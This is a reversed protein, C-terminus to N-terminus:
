NSWNDPLVIWDNALTDTQSAVWPVFANQTTKIGLWSVMSGEAYKNIDAAKFYPNLTGPKLVASEEFQDPHPAYPNIYRIWQNSANWGARTIRFGKKVMMLAKSYCLDRIPEVIADTSIELARDEVDKFGDVFRSRQKMLGTVVTGNIFLPGFVPDVSRLFTTGNTVDVQAKFQVLALVDKEEIM